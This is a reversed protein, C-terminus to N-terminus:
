AAAGSGYDRPGLLRLSRSSSTILPACHPWQHSNTGTDNRPLHVVAELQGRAGPEFELKVRDGKNKILFKDKWRCEYTPLRFRGVGNEFAAPGRGM